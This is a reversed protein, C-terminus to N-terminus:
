GLWALLVVLVIAVAVLPLVVDLHWIRGLAGRAGAPLRAPPSSPDVAETPAQNAVATAHHAWPVPLSGALPLGATLLLTPQLTGDPGQVLITTFAGASAGSMPMPTPPPLPLPGVAQPGGSPAPPPAGPLAAVAADLERRAAAVALAAAERAATVETAAMGRAREVATDRRARGAELERESAARTAAVRELMPEPESGGAALAREAADAAAAAARARLVLAANQARAASLIPDIDCGAALDLRGLPAAPPVPDPAPRVMTPTSEVPM